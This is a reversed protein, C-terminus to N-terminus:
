IRWSWAAPVTAGSRSASSSSSARIATVVNGRENEAVTSSRRPEVGVVSGETAADIREGSRDGLPEGVGSLVWLDSSDTSLHLV